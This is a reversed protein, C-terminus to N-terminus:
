GRRRMILVAVAALAAAGGVYWWVRSRPAAPAELRPAVRAAWANYAPVRGALKDAEHAQARAVKMARITAVRATDGAAAAKYAEETLAKQYAVEEPTSAGSRYRWGHEREWAGMSELDRSM